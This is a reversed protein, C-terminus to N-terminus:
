SVRTRYNEARYGHFDAWQAAHRVAVTAFYVETAAVAADAVNYATEVTYGNPDILEVTAM